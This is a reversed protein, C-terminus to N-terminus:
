RSLGPLIVVARRGGPEDRHLSVYGKFARMGGVCFFAGGPMGATAWRAFAPREGRKWVVVLGPPAGRIRNRGYDRRFV